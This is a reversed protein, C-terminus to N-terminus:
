LSRPMCSFLIYGHKSAVTGEVVEVNVMKVRHKLETVSSPILKAPKIICVMNYAASFSFRQTYIKMIIRKCM